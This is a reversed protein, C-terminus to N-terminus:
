WNCGRSMCQPDCLGNGRLPLDCIKAPCGEDAMQLSGGGDLCLAGGDLGATNNEFIAHHGLGLELVSWSMIAGGKVDATNSEIITMTMEDSKDSESFIVPALAYLAGGSHGATCARVRTSGDLCDDRDVSAFHHPIM